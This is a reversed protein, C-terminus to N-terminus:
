DGHKSALKVGTEKFALPFCNKGRKGFFKLMRKAIQKDPFRNPTIAALPLPGVAPATLSVFVNLGSLVHYFNYVDPTYM